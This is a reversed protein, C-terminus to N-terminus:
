DKLVWVIGDSSGLPRGRWSKFGELLAIGFDSSSSELEVPPGLFGGGLGGSLALTALQLAGALNRCYLLTFTIFKTPMLSTSRVAKHELGREM